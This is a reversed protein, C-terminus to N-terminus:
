ESEADTVVTDQETDQEIDVKQVTIDTAKETKPLASTAPTTGKLADFLKQAADPSNPDIMFRQLAM